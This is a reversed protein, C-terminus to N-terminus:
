ELAALSLRSLREPDAIVTYETIKGDEVTFTLAFDLRGGPAVVAQAIPLRRAV